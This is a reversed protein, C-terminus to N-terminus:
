FGPIQLIDVGILKLLFVSFIIFLLGAIVGTIIEKGQESKKPDGASVSILFAGYVMLLLAIGGAIGLALQLFSGLFQQPRTDICGIATWVKFNQNNGGSGACAQCEQTKDGLGACIDRIVPNSSNIGTVCWGIACTENSNCLTPEPPRTGGSVTCMGTSPDFRRYSLQDCCWSVPTESCIGSIPGNSGNDNSSYCTEKEFCATPRTSGPPLAYSCENSSEIYMGGGPCCEQGASFVVSPNISIFVAVFLVSILFKM